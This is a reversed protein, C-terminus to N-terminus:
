GSGALSPSPAQPPVALRHQEGKSLVVQMEVAAVRKGGGAQCLLLQAPCRGGVKAVFGRAAPVMAWPTFFGGYYGAVDKRGINWYGTDGSRATGLMRVLTGLSHELLRLFPFILRARM